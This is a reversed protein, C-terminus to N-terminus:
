QSRRTEHLDTINRTFIFLQSGLICNQVCHSFVDERKMAKKFVHLITNWSIGRRCKIFIHSTQRAFSSERQRTRNAWRKSLSYRFIYIKTQSQNEGLGYVNTGFMQASSYFDMALFNQDHLKSRNLLPLSDEPNKRFEPNKPFCPLLPGKWPYTHSSTQTTRLSPPGDSPVTHSSTVASRLCPARRVPIHLNSTLM